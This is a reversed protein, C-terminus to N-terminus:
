LQSIANAYVGASEYGLLQPVYWIAEILDDIIHKFFSM